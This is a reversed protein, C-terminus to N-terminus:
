QEEPEEDVTVTIPFELHQFFRYFIWGDLCNQLITQELSSQGEEPNWDAPNFGGNYLADILDSAWRQKEKEPISAILENVTLTVM